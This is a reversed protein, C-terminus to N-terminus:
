RFWPLSLTFIALNGLVHIVIPTMLSQSTHYAIAFVLGGAVQTVPITPLHFAAFLATSILVAAPLSWRRLYGFVLGRFVFEEAAPAVIGGVLFFLVRQSAEGPLSSRIMALPQRGSVILLLGALGAAAGFAASWLLGKKLGSLVHTTDLGFIGLGGAQFAALALILLSQLTRKVLLWAYPAQLWPAVLSDALELLGVAALSALLFATSIPAPGM